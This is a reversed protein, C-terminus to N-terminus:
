AGEGVAGRKDVDSGSKHRVEANIRLLTPDARVLKRVDQWGFTGGPGLRNCIARVVQLDEAVDVTWRYAGLPEECEMVAIHFGTASIGTLLGPRAMRPKVGDYLFPMVHERHAPATAERWAQDLAQRRCVEVDLGIPYTRPWPPPLRNASFDFVTDSKKSDLLAVAEDILDPDILPCDATIRVVLSAQTAEAAEHFRDLVDFQSGRICPMNRSKCFAVLEDDTSDATTAVIVKDVLAAHSAREFVWQLMPRGCIDLLVKGPLRTSNLRAQIIAVVNTM